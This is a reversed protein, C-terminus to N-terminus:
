NKVNLCSMVILTDGSQDSCRIAGSRMADWREKFRTMSTVTEDEDIEARKHSVLVARAERASFGLAVLRQENTGLTVAPSQAVTTTNTNAGIVAMSIIGLAILGLLKGTTSMTAKSRQNSHHARRIRAWM